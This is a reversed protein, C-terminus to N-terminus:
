HHFSMLALANLLAYENHHFRRFLLVEFCSGCCTACMSDFDDPGCGYRRRM